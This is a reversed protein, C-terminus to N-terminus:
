KFWSQIKKSYRSTKTHIILNKLKKEKYFNNNKFMILVNKPKSNNRFSLIPKVKVEANLKKLIELMFNLNEFRNILYCEGNGNLYKLANEIWLYLKKKNIYRADKLSKNKSMIVSNTFFFPPNTLILDFLGLYKKNFKTVDQNIFKLNKLRNKNKNLQSIKLHTLNKEFGYILSDPFRHAVILSIPGNGSGLDLINKHNNKAQAALIIPEIGSRYGNELQYYIIKSELLYDKTYLM